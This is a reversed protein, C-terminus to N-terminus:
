DGQLMSMCEVYIISIADTASPTFSSRAYGANREVATKSRSSTKPRAEFSADKRFLSEKSVNLHKVFDIIGGNYKDQMKTAPDIRQDTFRIEAKKLFAM